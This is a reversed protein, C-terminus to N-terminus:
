WAVVPLTAYVSPRVARGGGADGDLNEGCQRRLGIGGLAWTQERQVTVLRFGLLPQGKFRGYRDAQKLLGPLSRRVAPRRTSGVEPYGSPERGDVLFRDAVAQAGDEGLAM